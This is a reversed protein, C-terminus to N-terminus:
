RIYLVRVMALKQERSLAEDSWTSRPDGSGLFGFSRWVLDDVCREADPVSINAWIEISARRIYPGMWEVVLSCIRDFAKNQRTLGATWATSSTTISPVPAVQDVVRISLTPPQQSTFGIKLGAAEALQYAYKVSRQMVVEDASNRRLGYAELLEDL